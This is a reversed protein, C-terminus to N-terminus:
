HIICQPNMQGDQTMCGSGRWLYIVNEHTSYAHREVPSVVDPPPSLVHVQVKAAADYAPTDVLGMFQYAPNQKQSDFTLLGHGVDRMQQRIEWCVDSHPVPDGDVVYASVETMGKEAALAELNDIEGLVGDGGLIRLKKVTL